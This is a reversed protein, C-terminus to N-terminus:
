EEEWDEEACWPDLHHQIIVDRAPASEMGKFTIGEPLYIQKDLDDEWYADIAEICVGAM